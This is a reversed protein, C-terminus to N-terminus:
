QDPEGDKGTQQSPGPLAPAHLLQQVVPDEGAVIEEAAAGVDIRTEILKRLRQDRARPLGRHVLDHHDAVAQPRHQREIDQDARESPIRLQRPAAHGDAHEGDTRGDRFERQVRAGLTEPALDLADGGLRRDGPGFVLRAVIGDAEVLEVRYRQSADGAISSSPLGTIRRTCIWSM